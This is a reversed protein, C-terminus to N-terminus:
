KIGYLSFRSGAVFNASGCLLRISTVSATNLWVGSSLRARYRTTGIMGSLSRVTTNKSSSNFDLIDIVNSSFANASTLSTSVQGIAISNVSYAGGSLVSSGEGYLNHYAYNAGTDSNFTLDVEDIDFATRSSQAALRIQLHKYNSYSDLSSFTVSAAASGLVTTELLDYAGAAAPAGAGAVALIGLPIPM